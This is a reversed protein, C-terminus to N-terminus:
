QTPHDEHNEKRTETTGAIVGCMSANRTVEALFGPADDLDVEVALPTTDPIANIGDRGFLFLIGPDSILTTKGTDRYVTVDERLVCYTKGTPRQVSSGIPILRAELIFKIKM